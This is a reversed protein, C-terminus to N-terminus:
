AGVQVLVTDPAVQVALPKPLAVSHRVTAKLGAPQVARAVQSVAVGLTCHRTLALKTLACEQVVARLPVLQLPPALATSHLLVPARSPVQSGIAEQVGLESTNQRM